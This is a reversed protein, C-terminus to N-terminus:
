SDWDNRMLHKVANEIAVETGVANVVRTVGAPDLGTLQALFARDDRRWTAGASWRDLEFRELPTMEHWVPYEPRRAGTVPNTLTAM